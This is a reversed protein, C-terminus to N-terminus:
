HGVHKESGGDKQVLNAVSDLSSTTQHLIAAASFREQHRWFAFIAPEVLYIPEFNSGEGEM